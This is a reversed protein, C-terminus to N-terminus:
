AEDLFKIWNNFEGFTKFDDIRQKALTIGLKDAWILARTLANKDPAVIWKFNKDERPVNNCIGKYAKVANALKRVKEQRTM